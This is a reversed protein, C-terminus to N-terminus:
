SKIRKISLLLLFILFSIVVITGSAPLDFLISTLVGLNVSLVSILASWILAQKFNKALQLSSAAPIVLLASVLLIGVIKMGLVVTIATLVTISIEFRDVKLGSVKASEQDFTIYMFKPYYVTVAAMIAAAVTLSMWVELKGIALIDGFLYSFLNVNFQQSLSIIIVGVAFGTSSFIAIATDGYLGAKEKLKLIGLATLVAVIFAALLPMMHLLLGIAVGAFTIHALGHGIMADRRLILFIGLLACAVAIFSGAILARQLFNYSLLEFM